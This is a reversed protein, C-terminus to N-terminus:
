HLITITQVSLKEVLDEAQTTFTMPGKSSVEFCSVELGSRESFYWLSFVSRDSLSLCSFRCILLSGGGWTVIYCHCFYVANCGMSIAILLYISNYCYSSGFHRIVDLQCARIVLHFSVRLTSNSRTIRAQWRSTIRCKPDHLKNNYHINYVRGMNDKFYIYQILREIFYVNKLLVIM